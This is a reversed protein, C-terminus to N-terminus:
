LLIFTERVKHHWITFNGNKGCNNLFHRFKSKKRKEKKERMAAWNDSALCNYTNRQILLLGSISSTSNATCITMKCPRSCPIFRLCSAARSPWELDIMQVVVGLWLYWYHDFYLEFVNKKMSSECLWPLLGTSGMLRRGDPYSFYSALRYLDGVYRLLRWFWLITEVSFSSM